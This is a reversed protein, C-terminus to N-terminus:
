IFDRIRDFITPEVSRRMPFKPCEIIDFNKVDQQVARRLRVGPLNDYINLDLPHDELERHTRNFLIEGICSIAAYDMDPHMKNAMIQHVGALHNVDEVGFVCLENRWMGSRCGYSSWWSWHTLRTIFLTNTPAASDNEPMCRVPYTGPIGLAETALLSQMLLEDVGYKQENLVALFTTLNIRDMIYESTERALSVQTWGKALQVNLSACRAHEEKTLESPCLGLKGLNFESIECRIDWAAHPCKVFELDNAGNLATFVDALERNSKIMIDHNQLFLIYNWKRQRSVRMCDLLAHNHYHGASDTDYEEDALFVNPLCVSLTMINRRFSFPAKKDLAFCFTHEEAFNVSLQEELFEYDQHVVKAFAIHFGTLPNLRSKVRRQVAACSMDLSKTPVLKVRDLSKAY